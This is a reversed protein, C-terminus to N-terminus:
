RPGSGWPLMRRLTDDRDLLHHKLAAAAHGAVLAIMLWNLLEHVEALQKGLEVDKSLLDPIPLVSFYVTQFGKASSMLWGSLPIAFMLLYLVRHVTEAALTQWRPMDVAPPPHHGLRWTLRVLVLLFISVGAWKHWSYIKLKQPSLPLDAMYLGVCFASLIGIAILWHLAIATRTYRM